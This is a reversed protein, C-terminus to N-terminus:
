RREIDEEVCKNGWQIEIIQLPKDSENALRHWVGTPINIHNHKLLDIKRASSAREEYLVGQGEVVHWHENRFIHKQMSLSLGPNVTLEKVKTTPTEYLIRYYGWPRNTKNEFYKDTIWSSSNM